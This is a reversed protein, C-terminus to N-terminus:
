MTTESDPPTHYNLNYAPPGSNLFQMARLSERSVSRRHPLQPIPMPDSATGVGTPSQQPQNVQQQQQQQSTLSAFVNEGPMAGGTQTLNLNGAGTTAYSSLPRTGHFNSYSSRVSPPRNNTYYEDNLEPSHNLNSTSHQYTPNSHGGIGTGPKSSAWSTQQQLLPSSSNMNYYIPDIPSGDPLTPTHTNHRSPRNFTNLNNTGIQGFNNLMASSQNIIFDNNLSKLNSETLESNKNHVFQPFTKTLTMTGASQQNMLKTVPNQHVKRRSSRASSRNNSHSRRSTTSQRGTTGRQMVSRRKVRRPTMPKPSLSPGRLDDDDHGGRIADVPRSFEISYLSQRQKSKKSNRSSSDDEDLYTHGLCIAGFLGLIALACQVGSHIIEVIHYDLLCGDVREPRVPRYPDESTINMPYTPKCGYGNVEFWSVSGTGLNLLDSDRDLIGVNLYFCILFANWGIWLLNWLSYTVLYKPRYQYAGFFGFIVFIIHFFNVLIPAWMYGLFDFVQREIVFLLQLVCISLLFHRRSCSGM